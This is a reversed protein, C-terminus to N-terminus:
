KQMQVVLNRKLIFLSFLLKIFNKFYVAENVKSSTANSIKNSTIILDNKFRGTIPTASIM